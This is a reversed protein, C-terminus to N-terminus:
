SGINPLLLMTLTRIQPIPSVTVGNVTPGQHSTYQNKQPFDVIKTLVTSRM